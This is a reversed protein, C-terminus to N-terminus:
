VSTIFGMGSLSHGQKCRSLSLSCSIHVAGEGAACSAVGCAGFICIVTMSIGVDLNSGADVAQFVHVRGNSQELWSVDIYFQRNKIVLLRSM